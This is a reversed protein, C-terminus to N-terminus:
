ICYGKVPLLSNEKLVAYASQIYSLPIEQGCHRMPPIAAPYQTGYALVQDICKNANAFVNGETLEGCNM